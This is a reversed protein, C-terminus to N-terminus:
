ALLAFSPTLAYVLGPISFLASSSTGFVHQEDYSIFYEESEKMSDKFNENRVDSGSLSTCICFNRDNKLYMRKGCRAAAMYQSPVSTQVERAQRLVKM